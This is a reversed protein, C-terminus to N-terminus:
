TRELKISRLRTRKKVEDPADVIPEGQGKIEAVCAGAHNTSPTSSNHSVDTNTVVSNSQPTLELVCASTECGGLKSFAPEFKNKLPTEEDVVGKFEDIVSQDACVRKVIYCEEIGFKAHEKREVRFLFEQGILDLIDCPYCETPDGKIESLLERCTKNMLSYSESDWLLLSVWDEGNTVLIKIKFRKALEPEVEHVAHGNKFEIAEPLDPNWYFKTANMVNQIGVQSAKALQIILVPLGDRPVTRFGAVVDVMDDFVACRISGLYFTSALMEDVLDLLILRTERGQKKMTIEESVATLVGMFDFLFDSCGNITKNIDSTKLLSFGSASINVSPCPIMKTGGNFVIKFEHHAARFKGSNETLGFNSLRYVEREAVAQSFKMMFNKPVTAEIRGGEEDIFVMELAYPDNLKALSAM